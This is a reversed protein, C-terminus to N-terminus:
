KCDESDVDVLSTNKVAPVDCQVVPEDIFDTVKDWFGGSMYSIDSNNKGTIAFKSAM